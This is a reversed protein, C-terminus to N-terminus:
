SEVLLKNLDEDAFVKKDIKLYAMRDELYVSVDQVGPILAVQQRFAQLASDDMNKLSVIRSTVPKPNKMFVAVVVWLLAILGLEYFAPQSTDYALMTGGLLGGSFAGFFQSASFLGMASGKMDAPAIKAVLSPMSAELFNFGSFFLVLMAFVWLYEHFLYLGFESLMVLGVGLLFMAKMKRKREATLIMPMMFLISLVFVPLYTKWHEDVVIGLHDRLVLPFLVFTASLIMHLVFVGFDLRLLETNSIVRSLDTVSLQADRHFSQQEPTPTITLILFISLLALGATVWFIGSIGVSSALIPGMIMSFMFALGISMGIVAMIRIRMEERTLDAALAMVVAAIAGMGQLARGAIIAYISHALAAVVSGACFLLLGLVIMKKRGVRDSLFGFPLQFLGQTLGYIGVALGVLVPTAGAYDEAYLSFVPLIMFLGIMRFAYVLALSFMAQKETKLLV